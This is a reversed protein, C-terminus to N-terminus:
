KTKVRGGIKNKIDKLINLISGLRVFIVVLMIFALLDM